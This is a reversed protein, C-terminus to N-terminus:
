RRRSPASRATPPASPWSRRWSRRQWGPRRALMSARGRSRRARARLARCCPAGRRSSLDAMAPAPRPRRGPGPRSAGPVGEPSADSRPAASRGCGKPPAPHPAPFPVTLRCGARSTRHESQRDPARDARRADQRRTPCGAEQEPMAAQGVNRRAPGRACGTQGDSREETGCRAGNRREAAGTQMAGTRRGAREDPARKDPMEGAPRANRARGTRCGAGYDLARGTRSDAESPAVDRPAKHAAPRRQRRRDVGAPGDGPGVGPTQGRRGHWPSLCLLLWGARAISRRRARDAFLPNRCWSSVPVGRGGAHGVVVRSGCSLSDRAPSTVGDSEPCIRFRACKFSQRRGPRM